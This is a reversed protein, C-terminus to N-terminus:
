AFKSHPMMDDSYFKLYKKLAPYTPAITAEPRMCVNTNKLKYPLKILGGNISAIAETSLSPHATAMVIGSAGAPLQRKLAHYAVATHPDLLYGTRNFVDNITVAIDQDSCTESAIASCLRAKDGRALEMFRPVNASYARDMGYALTPRSRRRTDHENAALFRHIGANSNCAAVLRRIPLGMLQAIYGALLNGGNGCPVSVYIDTAHDDKLKLQSFAHFFPITSPLLSGLNMSNASTLLMQQNLETDTFARGIMAVCDDISGNVEILHINDGLTSLYDIHHKSLGKPYLLFVNVGPMEQFSSAIANGSHGTTAVMVNLPATDSSRLERIIGTLTRAGFDKVTRTPGHFLEMVYIGPEIEYLPMQYSASEDAIRKITESPLDEGFLTNNIVFAVDRLSMWPMNNIFANPLVPLHSPLYLGGDPAESRLM